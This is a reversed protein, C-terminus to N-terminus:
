FFHFPPYGGLILSAEAAGRVYSFGDNLLDEQIKKPLHEFGYTAAFERERANSSKALSEYGGAARFLNIKKLWDNTMGINQQELGWIFSVVELQLRTDM